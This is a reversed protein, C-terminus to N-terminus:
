GERRFLRRWWPRSQRRLEALAAESAAARKEADLLQDGQDDLRSQLRDRQDTLASIHKQFPATYREWADVPMIARETPADDDTVGKSDIAPSEPPMIRNGALISARIVDWTAGEARMVKSTHLIAVDDDNYRRTTGPSPTAGDSLLGDLEVSWARTSTASIRALKSAVKVTYPPQAPM